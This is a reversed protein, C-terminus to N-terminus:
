AGAAEYCSLSDGVCVTCSLTPAGFGPQVIELVYFVSRDDNLGFGLAQISVNSRSWKVTCM